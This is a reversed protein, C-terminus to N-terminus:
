CLPKGYKSVFVNVLADKQAPTARRRSAQIVSRVTTYPYPFKFNSNIWKVTDDCSISKGVSYLAEAYFALAIYMREQLIKETKKM